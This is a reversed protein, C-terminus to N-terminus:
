GTTGNALTDDEDVDVGVDKALKLVEALGIGRESTDNVALEVQEPEVRAPTGYAYSMLAAYAQVNGELAKEIMAGTLAKEKKEVQERLRQAHSKARERRTEAARLAGKRREEPTFVHPEVGGRLLKRQQPTNDTLPKTPQTSVPGGDTPRVFGM